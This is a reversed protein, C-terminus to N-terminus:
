GKVAGLTLGSAFYKQLFPYVVLIPLMAVVAIAMRVSVSPISRGSGTSSVFSNSSLFQADALIRYLYNQIGYLKADTIYYMGNMWDNWYALGAFLAVTIIIPKGLPLVIRRLICGFGAGDIEAAEYLSEPISTMFFTRELIVYMAGMMLNPILLGLYTNKIHFIQTYTLYTPVLGGNFLMTFFVMFNFFKRGPLKKQALGFALMTSITVNATTGIATILITIGYARFITKSNQFLYEYAELSFAKPFFSYGNIILSNEETLSSMILLFFPLIMCLTILILIAHAIGQFTRSGSNRSVTIKRRQKFCLM